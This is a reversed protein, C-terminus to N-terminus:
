SFSSDSPFDETDFRDVIAPLSDFTVNAYLTAVSLTLGEIALVIQDEMQQFTTLLWRRSEGERQLHEVYCRKQDILVYDRLSPIRRYHESKTSRDYKETSPSLIEFLVTPNKLTHDKGSDMEPPGCVISADPYTFLDSPCRLRMDSPLTVCPKGKLAIHLEGILNGLILNHTYSAGTMQFIQGRYYEHKQESYHDIELYEQITLRPVPVTSM